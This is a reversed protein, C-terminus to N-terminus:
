YAFQLSLVPSRALYRRPGCVLSAFAMETLEPVDEPAPWCDVLYLKDNDTILEFRGGRTTTDVEIALRGYRRMQQYAEGITASAEMILGVISVESMLVTEAYHLALAPDGLMAKTERLLDIYSALPLRADPDGLAEHNLRARCRLESADAGQSEAHRILGKVLGASVTPLAM